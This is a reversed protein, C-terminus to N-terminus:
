IFDSVLPLSSISNKLAIIFPVSLLIPICVGTVSGGAFVLGFKGCTVGCVILGCGVCLAVVFAPGGVRVGCSVCCVGCLRGFTWGSMCLVGCSLGVVVFGVGGCACHM